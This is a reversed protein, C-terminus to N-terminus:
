AFGSAVGLAFLVLEAWAMRGGRDAPGGSSRFVPPKKAVVARAFTLAFADADDPSAEGRAQLDAKSEIVLQGRPNTHYGPTCLQGCLLDDDPLSGLLCHDKSKRWMSARANSDHPDSSAAGFNVEHVTSFGLAKLQVVIAAGFAADVFLAALQHGPRRDSLLEACKAIRVGRDPDQEGPLRWPGLPAGNAGLPNGCLGRRFRIVNWAKGGGSVDFGAILPDDPLPVM